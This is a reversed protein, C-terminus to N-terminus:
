PSLEGLTLPQRGKFEGGAGRRTEARKGAQGLPVAVAGACPLGLPQSPPPSVPSPTSAVQSWLWAAFAMIKLVLLLFCENLSAM